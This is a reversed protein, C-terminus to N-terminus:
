SPGFCGSIYDVRGSLKVVVVADFASLDHGEWFASEPGEVSDVVDVLLLCCRSYRPCKSWKEAKDALEQGVAKSVNEATISPRLAREIGRQDLPRDVEVYSVMGEQIRAVEVAWMEGELELEFDPFTDDGLPEYRSRLDELRIDLRSCLDRRLSELAFIEMDENSAYLDIFTLVGEREREVLRVAAPDEPNVLGIVLGDRKVHDNAMLDVEFSHTRRPGPVSLVKRAGGSRPSVLLRSLVTVLREQQDPHHIIILGDCGDVWDMDNQFVIDSVLNRLFDITLEQGAGSTHPVSDSLTHAELASNLNQSANLFEHGTSGHKGPLLVFHHWPIKKYDPDTRDVFRTPFNSAISM